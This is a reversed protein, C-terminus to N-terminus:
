FGIKWHNMRVLQIQRQTLGLGLLRQRHTVLDNNGYFSVRWILMANNLSGIVKRFYPQDVESLSHGLVVVETIDTLNEFFAKNNEIIAESEKFSRTFYSMLEQKGTEYAYDYNDGQYERWTDLEEETANEPPQPEDITFEEPSIGHGLVLVSDPDTAKEHVYVIQEPEIEYYRELTDTYNFNLYISETSLLLKRDNITLPFKVALIFEKFAQVLNETLDKVILEMAIQYSHWDHDKFNDSALDPLYNTNDDLVTEFDLNTLASEFDAWLPDQYSEKEERDLDPLGYYQVLYEHVKSYHDQLYFAFTQYRTDLGHYRDFGNGIIYLIKSM